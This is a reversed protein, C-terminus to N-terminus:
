KSGLMPEFGKGYVGSVNTQTIFANKDIQKILRFVSNSESRRTMLMIIKQPQKSYWGVGDVVSCGRNLESVIHTAIEDYHQSFIFFQVSQRSGNIVMDVAYYLIVTIIFGIIITEISQFLIYSSMVIVADIYTLVRGISINHYKTIMAAVIDGGGTSSNATFVLGLGIGTIVSGVLISMTADHIFPQTIHNEAFGLIITLALTSFATNLVYKRGIIFWAISLLIANVTIMTIWLPTGLAYNVLLAIGGLGGTVVKYPILFGVYGISFLVLGLVIIIYDRWYFSKLHKKPLSLNM